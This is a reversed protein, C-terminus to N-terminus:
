VSMKQIKYAEFNVVAGGVRKTTYFGVNPKDTFPDRLVRIGIRDVVQYARRFDGYAAALAASAIAAVDAAFMVPKGMITPELGAVKDYNMNFIPRGEGDKIKMISANSARRMLFRANAHYPEKLANQLDVLGNYTFDTTSGANVQEVQQSALTTGADYSMIGKPRNVGNGTVFATAETRGFIDAVKQGLWAEMDIQSDDLIKQTARPFAYMENVPIILKGLTPNATNARSATEGVWSAAAEDNDLIVEYSDSGITTVTALQRIPSSEFVRANIMGGFEPMVTYGGNPDSIVSLTKLEPTDKAKASLFTHFHVKAQADEEPIRAFQNFLKNVAFKAKKEEMEPTLSASPARNLATELAKIQDAQAKAQDELAKRSTEAKQHLEVADGIAKELKTFKGKTEGDLDDFKEKLPLVETKLAEFAKMANDAATKIEDLQM